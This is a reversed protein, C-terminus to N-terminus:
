KNQIALCQKKSSNIKMGKDNLAEKWIKMKFELNEESTAMFAIDDAFICETIQIRRPTNYEDIKRFNKHM